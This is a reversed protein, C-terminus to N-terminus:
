LQSLRDTLDEASVSQLCKLTIETPRVAATLAKLCLQKISCSGRTNSVDCTLLLLSICNNFHTISVRGRGTTKWTHILLVDLQGGAWSQGAATPSAVTWGTLDLLLATGAAELSGADLLDDSWGSFLGGRGGGGRWGVVGQGALWGPRM